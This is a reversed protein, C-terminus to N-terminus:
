CFITCINATLQALSFFYVDDAAWFAVDSFGIEGAAGAVIVFATGAPANSEHHYGLPKMSNQYVPNGGLEKLQSKVLRRGRQASAVTGIPKRAVDVGGLLRELFNERSM